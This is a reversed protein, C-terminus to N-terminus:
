NWKGYKCILSMAVYMVAQNYTKANVALILFLVVFCKQESWVIPQVKTEINRMTDGLNHFVM